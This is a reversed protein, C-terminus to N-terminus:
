QTTRIQQDPQKRGWASVVPFVAVDLQTPVTAGGAGPEWCHWGDRIGFALICHPTQENSLDGLLKFQDRAM